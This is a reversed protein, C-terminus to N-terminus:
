TENKREKEQVETQSQSSTTKERDAITVTTGSAVVFMMPKGGGSIQSCDLDVAIVANARM